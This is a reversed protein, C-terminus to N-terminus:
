MWLIYTTLLNLTKWSRLRTMLLKVLCIRFISISIISKSFLMFDWLLKVQPRNLELESTQEDDSVEARSLKTWHETKDLGRLLLPFALEDAVHYKTFLNAM